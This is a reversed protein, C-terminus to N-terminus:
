EKSEHVCLRGSRGTTVWKHGTTVGDDVWRLGSSVIRPRSARPVGVRDLRVCVGGENIRLAITTSSIIIVPIPRPLRPPDKAPPEQRINRVHLHRRGNNCLLHTNAEAATRRIM